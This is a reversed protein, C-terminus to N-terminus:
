FDAEAKLPRGWDSAEPVGMNLFKIAAVVKCVTEVYSIVVNHAKSYVGNWPLTTEQLPSAPLFHLTRRLSAARGASSDAATVERPQGSEPGWGGPGRGSM